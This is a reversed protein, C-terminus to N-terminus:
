IASIIHEYQVTFFFMFENVVEGMEPVYDPVRINLRKENRYEYTRFVFSLGLRNSTYKYETYDQGVEHARETCGMMCLVTHVHRVEMDYFEIFRLNTNLIEDRAILDVYMM